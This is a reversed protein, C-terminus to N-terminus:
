FKINNYLNIFNLAPLSQTVVCFMESAWAFTHRRDDDREHEDPPFLRVASRKGSCAYSSLVFLLQMRCSLVASIIWTWMLISRGDADVWYKACAVTHTTCTLMANKVICCRDPAPVASALQHRQRSIILSSYVVDGVPKHNVVSRLLDRVLLVLSEFCVKRCM